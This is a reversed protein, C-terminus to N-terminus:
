VSIKINTFFAELDTTKGDFQKLVHVYKNPMKSLLCQDVKIYNKDFIDYKYIIM